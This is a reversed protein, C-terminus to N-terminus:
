RRHVIDGLVSPIARSKMERSMQGWVCPQCCTACVCDKCMNGKIGYRQRMSVRISMTVPPICGFIDLLPLCLCQGFQKTTICAHCPCCWFWFCCDPVDDCCDCIGSTWEDTETYTRLPQPQAVVVNCIM